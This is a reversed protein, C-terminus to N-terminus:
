RLCPFPCSFGCCIRCEDGAMGANEGARGSRRAERGTRAEDAIRLRLARRRDLDTELRMAGADAGGIAAPVLLGGIGRDLRDVVGAADVAPLDLHDDLVVAGIGRGRRWPNDALEGGLMLDIDGIARQEAMNHDTRRRGGALGLQGIEDDAFAM